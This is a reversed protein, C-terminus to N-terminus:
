MVTVSDSVSWEGLDYFTIEYRTTGVPLGNLSVEVREGSIWQQNKVLVIGDKKLTYYNPNSDTPTWPLTHNLIGHEITVSDLFTIEPPSPDYVTVLVTDQGSNRYFDRIIITYNHVGVPLSDVNVVIEDDNHWTGSTDGSPSLLTYSGPTNLDVPNWVLKNGTTGFLYALNSPREFAPPTVDPVIVNTTHTVNNGSTDFFTIMFENPGSILGDAVGHYTVTQNSHFTGNQLQDGNRSIEYYDPLLDTARWNLEFNRGTVVPNEPHTRLIPKTSDTVFVVLDVSTIFTYGPKSGQFRFSSQFSGLGAGYYLTDSFMEGMGWSGLSTYINYYNFRQHHIASFTFDALNEWPDLVLYPTVEFIQPLISGNYEFYIYTRTEAYSQRCATCFTTNAYPVISPSIIANNEQFKLTSINHASDSNQQRLKKVPLSLNDTDQPSNNNTKLSPEISYHPSSEVKPEVEFKSLQEDFGQSINTNTVLPKAIGSAIFTLM